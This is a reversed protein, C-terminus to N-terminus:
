AAGGVFLQDVGAFTLPEDVLGDVAANPNVGTVYAYGTYHKEDDIDTYFRVLVFDGLDSVMLGEADAFHRDATANWGKLGAKFTRWGTAAAGSIQFQTTELADCTLDVAWGTFGVRARWGGAYYYNVVVSVDSVPATAFLFTGDPNVSFHHPWTQTVESAADSLTVDVTRPDPFDNDVEFGVVSGTGTFTQGDSNTVWEGGMFLSGM